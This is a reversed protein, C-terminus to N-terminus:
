KGGRRGDDVTVPPCYPPTAVFSLYAQEHGARVFRVRDQCVEISKM